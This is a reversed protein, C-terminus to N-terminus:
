SPAAQLLVYRIGGREAASAIARTARRLQDLVRRRGNYAREDIAEIYGLFGPFVRSGVDDTTVDRFGAASLATHYRGVSWANRLSPALLPDDVVSPEEVCIELFTLQKVGRAAAERLVVTKDEFHFAAEIAFLLDVRDWPVTGPDEARGVIYETGPVHATARRAVDVQERSSNIGFYPTRPLVEHFLERSGGWGSGLDLAGRPPGEGHRRACRAATEEVAFRVLAVQAERLTPAPWLGMNMHGSAEPCLARFSDGTVRYYQEPNPIREHLTRMRIGM